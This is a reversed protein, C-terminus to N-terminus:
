REKRARQSSGAVHENYVSAQETGVYIGAVGSAATPVASINAIIRKIRQKDM